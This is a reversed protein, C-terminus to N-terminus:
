SKALAEPRPRPIAPLPLHLLRNWVFKGGVDFASRLRADRYILWFLRSELEGAHRHEGCCRLFSNVALFTKHSGATGEGHVAKVVAERPMKCNAIRLERIEVPGIGHGYM